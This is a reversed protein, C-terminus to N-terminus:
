DALRPDFADRLGDGIVYLCLVTVSILLGPAIVLHPANRLLELGGTLMNGWTPIPPKVGFGLFSLSSETLILGGIARSLVILLVSIVNPAIHVFMIRLDSAGVARAAIIFERQRLSFTEGRVIRTAGTWGLFVLVLILSNDDPALLASIILLLFLQPISNLTTIVWMVFDDFIGRWFGASIGLLVGITLSGIASFFGIKLSVQGGYLLRTALDRGAGDTGLLYFRRRGETGTVVTEGDPSIVATQVPYTVEEYIRLSEGTRSDWLRATGDLSGTLVALGDATFVASTVADDHGAFTLLADGSAADWLRATGDAGATLLTNGDVNFAVSNIADDHAALTFRAEGSPVAWLIVAGDVSGTAVLSGDPSFAVAQIGAGAGSDDPTFVQTEQGSTVDWLRATGDLSGTLLMTGDPSFAAGTVAATHGEFLRIPIDPATQDAKEVDWLQATGDESALVFLEGAPHFAVDYVAQENGEIVRENRGSSIHWVRVSGDVSASIFREGSPSFTATLVTDTHAIFPRVTEGTEANWLWATTDSDAVRAGPPLRKNYLDNNNYEIDLAQVVLPASFCLVTLLVIIGFAALTLRDHRIRWLAKQLLTKYRLPEEANDTLSVVAGGAQPSTPTSM